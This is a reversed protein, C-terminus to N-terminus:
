VVVVLPLDAIMVVAAAPRRARRGARGRGAAALGRVGQRAQLWIYVM